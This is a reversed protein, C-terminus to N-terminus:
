EMKLENTYKLICLAILNERGELVSFCECLLTFNMADNEGCTNSSYITNGYINKRHLKLTPPNNM